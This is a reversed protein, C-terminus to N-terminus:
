WFGKTVGINSVSIKPLLFETSLLQLDLHLDQRWKSNPGPCIVESWSQLPNEM